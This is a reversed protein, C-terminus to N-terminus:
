GCWSDPPMHWRASIAMPSAPRGRSSIASSGVEASSTVTCRWTSSWRCRSVASSPVATSNIVWSRASAASRASDTTTTCSPTTTSDPAACDIRCSGRCSYVRRSTAAAGASVTPPPAR